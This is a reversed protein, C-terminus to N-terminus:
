PTHPSPPANTAPRGGGERPPTKKKSWEEGNQIHEGERVWVFRLTFTPDVWGIPGLAVGGRLRPCSQAAHQRHVGLEPPLEGEHEALRRAVAGGGPLAM